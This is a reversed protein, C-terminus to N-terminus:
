GNARGIQGRTCGVNSIIQTMDSGEDVVSNDGSAQRKLLNSVWDWVAWDQGTQIAPGLGPIRGRYDKGRDMEYSGDRMYSVISTRQRPQV